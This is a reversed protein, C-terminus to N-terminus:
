LVNPGDPVSATTIVPLSLLQALKLLAVVNGRLEEQELDKVTQFLGSQHDILLLAVDDPNIMAPHQKNSM